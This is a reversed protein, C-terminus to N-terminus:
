LITSWRDVADRLLAIEGNQFSMEKLDQITVFRLVRAFSYKNKDLKDKISDTLGFADCFEAIPMDIGPARNEQLLTPCQLDYLTRIPMPARPPCRPPNAVLITALENDTSSLQQSSDLYATSTPDEGGCDVNSVVEDRRSDVPQPLCSTPSSITLHDRPDDVISLLKNPQFHVSPSQAPLSASMSPAPISSQSPSAFSSNSREDCHKEMNSLWMNPWFYVPTSMPDMSSLLKNPHQSLLPLLSNQRQQEHSEPESYLQWGPNTPLLDEHYDVTSLLTGLGIHGSHPLTSSPSMVPKAFSSTTQQNESNSRWEDPSLHGSHPLASPSTFFPISSHSRSNDMSSTTPHLQSQFTQRQAM